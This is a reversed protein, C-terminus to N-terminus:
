KSRSRQGTKRVPGQRRAAVPIEMRLMVDMASPRGFFWGQAFDTGLETLRIATREDEVSEAITKIQMVHAIDHIAKVMANDVPDDMMRSVFSGDIKLYDVCLNKLYPFSSLGSGFDDLAFRCGMGRLESIFHKAERLNSIAATETIEFCLKSAVDQRSLKDVVFALFRKDCLAQASINISVTEPCFGPSWGQIADLAHEVVWEDVAVMQDYREAAPIFNNPAVVNGHIDVMRLLVECHEVGAAPQGLSVIPQFDLYFRSEALAHQIRPIWQMQGDRRALDTDGSQNVHVKNRGQEKAVYCASDAAIMIEQFSGSAESIPVLGISVGVSFQRKEWLFRFGHVARRLQEAISAARDIACHELLAGFEDGGLRALTDRKRLHTQLLAAIQRLLEDGAAHGCTDNVIKFQDLDLYLLAHSEQETRSETLRKLRREFEARNVLGTLPDHTAQHALQRALGRKETIDRLTMVSGIISGNASKIPSIADEVALEAGDRRIILTNEPLRSRVGTRLVRLLGKLPRRTTEDILRLVHALRQGLAEKSTWGTLQEAIPNFFVIRGRMDTSIVGESISALTVQYRQKEHFLAQEAQERKAVEQMLSENLLRSGEARQAQEEKNNFETLDHVIGVFVRSKSYEAEGVSLYVPMLRGDKHRARVERGVGLIHRVGTALYRAIYTDHSERDPSPMLFSINRGIAEDPTYGFLREAGPSFSQILGRESIVILGDPIARAIADFRSDRILTAQNDGNDPSHAHMKKQLKM